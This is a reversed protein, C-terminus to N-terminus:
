TAAPTLPPLTECPARRHPPDLWHRHWLEFVLLLWLRHSHDHRCSDHEALIQQIASMDFYDRSAARRAPLTEHLLEKLEGRFWRDLPVGFGMKKRRFVARPLLSGFARELIWKGCGRRFKLDAPMAAALEVLRHDLMPQRCELGCTMTAMDTKHCLDSPLYTVLDALSMASLVDRNGSRALAADLYAAPDDNPLEKLFDDSYLAVRSTEDFISMLEVYRRGPPVSLLKSLRKAREVFGKQRGGSPLRQWARSGLLARVPPIRDIRAALQMARYRDYGAFLEDGGDGSLAVAVQRRTERALCYTPLASSDGFPEDFTKVLQSILEVHQPDVRFEHHEAGLHTAVLRAFETEDYSPDSFGVTFTQIPSVVHDRMLAAIISSDVGGSLFVGLPVDSVLQSRVAEGLTARVRDVYETQDLFEEGSCDPQWYPKVQLSDNEFVAIHGPPLKFIGRFITRPAPVYQYMLYEDLAAPDLERPVNPAVLLSKLESAFMLRGSEYRYVLPKQGLRDRALVVRRQRADWIGIAFMGILHRVFDVGEDEYLHVLVETDGRSRFRHGNAELRRRLEQYNYIEGNFVLQISGDENAMPQHSAALDIIALRRHGLAVGPLDGVPGALRLDSTFFGESDPGRHALAGTMGALVDPAIALRPDTWVAGTIGCM